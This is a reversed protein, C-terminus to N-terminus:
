INNVPSSVGTGGSVYAFVGHAHSYSGRFARVFVDTLYVSDMFSVVDYRGLSRAVNAVCEDFRAYLSGLYIPALGVKGGKELLVTLPFFYNNLNEGPRSFFIFMSLWYALMAKLALGRCSREGVNFYHIWSSYSSPSSAVETLRLVKEKDEGTPVWGLVSSDGYLLLLM